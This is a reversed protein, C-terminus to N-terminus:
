QMRVTEGGNSKGWQRRQEVDGTNKEKAKISPHSANHQRANTLTNVVVILATNDAAHAELLLAFYKQTSHCEELTNFGFHKPSTSDACTLSGRDFHPPPFISSGRM